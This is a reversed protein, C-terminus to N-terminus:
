LEPKFIPWQFVLCSGGLTSEEYHIKGGSKEIIKKVISLGLGHSDTAPGGLRNFSKFIQERQEQPVVIGNDSFRFEYYSEKRICEIILLGKERSNFKISNTILNLFIQFFGTYNANVIPLSSRLDVRFNAPVEINRMVEEFVKNLDVQETGGYLGARAYDLIGYILNEMTGLSSNLHKVYEKLHESESPSLDQMILQTLAKVHQLPAKLDHSVTYSFKELEEKVHELNIIKEELKLRESIDRVVALAFNENERKILSLAIDVDIEKGDKRMGKLKLGAGMKRPHGAAFYNKVHQLHSRGYKEPILLSLPAQILESETYGFLVPTQRNFEVIISDKNIILMADPFLDFTGRLIKIDDKM